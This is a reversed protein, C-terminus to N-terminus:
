KVSNKLSYYDRIKGLKEYLNLLTTQAEKKEDLSLDMTLLKEYALMANNRKDKKLLDMAQNKILDKRKMKMQFKQNENGCVLARQLVIDSEDYKGARIFLETAKMFDNMKGLYTTNIEASTVMLKAADAYMGRPGYIEALKVLVFKKTDFNINMRLVKQLYDMKVYDGMDSLKTEVERRGPILGVDRFGM